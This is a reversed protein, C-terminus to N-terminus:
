TISKRYTENIRRFPFLNNIADDLWFEDELLHVLGEHQFSENLWEIKVFTM